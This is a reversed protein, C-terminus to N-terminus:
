KAEELVETVALELKALEEPPVKEGVYKVAFWTNVRYITADKDIYKKFWESLTIENRVTGSIASFVGIFLGDRIAIYRYAPHDEHKM